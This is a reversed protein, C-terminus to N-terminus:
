KRGWPYSTVSGFPIVLPAPAFRTILKDAENIANRVSSRDRGFEKALGNISQRPRQVHTRYWMTGYRYLLQPDRSRGKIQKQARVLRECAIQVERDYSELDLAPVGELRVHVNIYGSPGFARMILQVTFPIGTQASVMGAFLSLRVQNWVGLQIAPPLKALPEELDTFLTVICEPTMRSRFAVAAAEFQDALDPHEAFPDPGGNVMRAMALEPRGGTMATLINIARWVNKGADTLGSRDWWSLMPERIDDCGHNILSALVHTLGECDAITGTANGLRVGTIFKCLFSNVNQYRSDPLLMLLLTATAHNSQPVDERDESLSGV